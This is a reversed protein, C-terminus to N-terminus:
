ALGDSLVSVSGAYVTQGNIRLRYRSAAAAAAVQSPTASFVLASSDQPDISGPWPAVAAGFYMDAVVGAPWSVKTKSDRASRAILRIGWPEGIVLPLDRGTPPQGLALM